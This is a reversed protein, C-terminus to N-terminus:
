FYIIAMSVGIWLIIDIILPIDTILITEPSGGLNKIHVLYLYRFIGYVVFPVTFILNQTGFKNITQEAMTYLAYAIVTSATTVSIMQDLLNISYEGLVIRHEKAADNLFSIEHRRKCLSLFLALLFTCLILWSSISVNIIVAGALVRLVFGITIILVDLIVIKKLLLSYLFQLLSYTIIIIFFYKNIFFSFIIASITIIVLSIIATSVSLKGSPLPRKSKQPHLQDKKLDLLDNFIYTAGSILCLILFGYITKKLFALHFLNKSFILAAFVLGNKTWQRPRTTKIIQTLVGWM